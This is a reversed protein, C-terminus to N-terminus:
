SSFSVLNFKNLLISVFILALLPILFNLWAKFQSALKGQFQGAFERLAVTVILLASETIALPTTTWRTYIDKQAKSSLVEVIIILSVGVLALKLLVSVISLRTKAVVRFLSLGDQGPGPGPGVPKATQIKKVQSSALDRAKSNATNSVKVQNVKNQHHRARVKGSAKKGKLQKSHPTRAVGTVKAQEDMEKEMNGAPFKVVSKSEVEPVEFIDVFTNNIVKNKANSRLFIEAELRKNHAQAMTANKAARIKKIEV